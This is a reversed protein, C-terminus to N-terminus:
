AETVETADNGSSFLSTLLAIGGGIAAGVPGGLLFGVGAAAGLPIAAGAVKGVGKLFKKSSYGEVKNGTMYAEIEESSAKHHNGLTLGQMFGNEFYGEDSQRADMGITTGNIQQYARAVTAKVSQEFNLRDEHNTIERGYQKSVAEVVEDYLRAAKGYEGNRLADAVEPLNKQMIEGYSMLAHQNGNNVFTLDTWRDSNNIMNDYYSNTVAPNICGGPYYGMGPISINSFLSGSELYQSMSGNCVGGTFGQGPLVGTIGITM